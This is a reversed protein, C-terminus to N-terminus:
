SWRGWVITQAVAYILSLVAIQVSWTVCFWVTILAIDLGWVISGALITVFTMGLLACWIRLRVYAATGLICWIAIIGLTPAFTAIFALLVDLPVTLARAVAAFPAVLTM